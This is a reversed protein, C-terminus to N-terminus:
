LSEFWNRLIENEVYKGDKDYVSRGWYESKWDGDYKMDYDVDLFYGYMVRVVNTEMNVRLKGHPIIDHDGCKKFCSHDSKPLIPCSDYDGELVGGDDHRECYFVTYVTKKSDEKEM